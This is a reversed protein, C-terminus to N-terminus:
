TEEAHKTISFMNKPAELNWGLCWRLHRHGGKHLMLTVESIKTNGVFDDADYHTKHCFAPKQHTLARDTDGDFMRHGREYLLFQTTKYHM